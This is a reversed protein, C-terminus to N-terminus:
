ECEKCFFHSGKRQHKKWKMHHKLGACKRHLWANCSDCQIWQTEKDHTDCVKCIVHSDNESHQEPESHSPGPESDIHISTSEVSPTLQESSLAKQSKKSSKVAKTSASQKGLTVNKGSSVRIQKRHAMKKEV